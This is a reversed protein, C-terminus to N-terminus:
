ESKYPRNLRHELRASTHNLQRIPLSAISALGRRSRLGHVYHKARAEELNCPITYLSDSRHGYATHNHNSRLAGIGSETFRRTLRIPPTYIQFIKSGIIRRELPIGESKAKKPCSRRLTGFRSQALVHQKSWLQVDLLVSSM